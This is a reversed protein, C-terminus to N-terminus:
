DGVLAKMEHNKGPASTAAQNSERFAIIRRAALVLLVACIPPGIPISVLFLGAFCFLLVTREGPLFGRSIGDRVLFAVAISLICLDYYFIYPSVMVSGICLIAAKLSYPIPKAWAVGVSVAVIASVVLHGTWSVSASAEAWRLFGFVSHLALPVTADPSLTSQRDLLTHFFSWWGQLGFAIAAEIILAISIATAGAVARWNRSYLLALPYLVGFHPKYTLVGLFMGSLWPRRELLALSFGMLAATIFGNHGFDANVAVFFPATAAIVAAGRPIIAYVSAGYFFLTTLVWLM